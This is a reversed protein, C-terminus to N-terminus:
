VEKGVVVVGVVVQYHHAVQLYNQPATRCLWEPELTGNTRAAVLVSLLARFSLEVHRLILLHNSTRYQIDKHYLLSVLVLRCSLRAEELRKHRSVKEPM